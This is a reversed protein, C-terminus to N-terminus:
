KLMIYVDMVDEPITDLLRKRSTCGHRRDYVEFRLKSKDKIELRSYLEELLDGVTSGQFNMFPTYFSVDHANELYIYHSM